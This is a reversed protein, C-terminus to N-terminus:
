EEHEAEERCRTITFEQRYKVEEKEMRDRVGALAEPNPAVARKGGTFDGLLSLATLINRENKSFEVIKQTKNILYDRDVVLIEAIKAKYQRIATKVGINGLIQHMSHHATKRSFGASIASQKGNNYTESGPDCFLPIFASQLATLPKQVGDLIDILKDRM